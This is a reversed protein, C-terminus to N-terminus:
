LSSRRTESWEAFTRLHTVQKRLQQKRTHLSVLIEPLIKALDQLTRGYAMLDPDSKDSGLIQGVCNRAHTLEIRLAQIMQPQILSPQGRMRILRDVRTRLNCNIARLNHPVDAM